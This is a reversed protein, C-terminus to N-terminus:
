ARVVASYRLTVQKGPDITRLQWRYLTPSLKSPTQDENEVTGFLENPNLIRDDRVDLCANLAPAEGNNQVIFTSNIYNADTTELLAITLSDPNNTTATFLCSDLSYQLMLPGSAPLATLHLLLSDAASANSIALVQSTKLEKNNLVQVPPVDVIVPVNPDSILIYGEHADPSNQPNISQEVKPAKQHDSSEPTDPSKQHSVNGHSNGAIEVLLFYQRREFTRTITPQYDQDSPLVDAVNITASQPTVKINASVIVSPSLMSSQVAFIDDINNGWDLWSSIKYWVKREDEESKLPRVGLMKRLDDRHTDFALQVMDGWTRAQRVAAQYVIFALTLPLLAWLVALGQRLFFFQVLIVEVAFLILLFELSVLFDLTTKENDVAAGLTKDAALVAKMHPWLATMDIGYRDWITGSVANLVNGLATPAMNEEAKPYHTDRWWGIIIKKRHAVWRKLFLQHEKKILQSREKASQQDTQNDLEQQLMEWQSEAQNERQHNIEWENNLQQLNIRQWRLLFPGIVPSDVWLEGTFLKLIANQFSLLLYALLLVLGVALVVQLAPSLNLISVALPLNKDVLGPLIFLLNLIIRTHM